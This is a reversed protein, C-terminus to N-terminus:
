ETPLRANVKSWRTMSPAYAARNRARSASIRCVRSQALSSYDDVLVATFCDRLLPSVLSMSQTKLLYFYKRISEKREGKRQAMM